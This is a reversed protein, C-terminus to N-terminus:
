RRRLDSFVCNRSPRRVLFGHKESTPESESRGIAAAKRRRRNQFRDFRCPVGVPSTLMPPTSRNQFRDFRCPVGVCDYGRDDDRDNQLRDIQCPVGVLLRFRDRPRRNQFRDFRCPVGVSQSSHFICNGNQLRDIQCPAGVLLPVDDSRSSNRFGGPKVHSEARARMKAARLGGAEPDM